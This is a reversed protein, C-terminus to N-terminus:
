PKAGRYNGGILDNTGAPLAFTISLDLNVGGDPSQHGVQCSKYGFKPVGVQWPSQGSKHICWSAM